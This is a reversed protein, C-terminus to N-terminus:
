KGTFRSKSNKDDSKSQKDKLLFCRKGKGKKLMEESRTRSAGGLFGVEIDTQMSKM